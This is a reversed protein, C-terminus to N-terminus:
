ATSESTLNKVIVNFIITKPQNTIIDLSKLHVPGNLRYESRSSPPVASGNVLVSIPSSSRLSIVLGSVVDCDFLFLKHEGPERIMLGGEPLPHISTSVFQPQPSINRLCFWKQDGKRSFGARFDTEFPLELIPRRHMLNSLHDWFKLGMHIQDLSSFKEAIWGPAFLATSMRLFDIKCLSKNCDFGGICGRAFVDIGAYIKNIEGFDASDLLESESWNYNLYIGDCHDYFCKNLTNLQNQWHLRGNELVSDYWIVRTAGIPSTSRTRDTLQRLFYCINPIWDPQCKNEINILWGDFKYHKSIRVLVDIAADCHETSDFIQSCLAYGGTWETIFTGLVLCGNAHGLNIYAAPPITIFNHSFYCFVDVSWYNLLIYPQSDEPVAYGNWREEDLYGGKMDHCLLLEPGNTARYNRLPITHSADFKEETWEFLETLGGIPVTDM